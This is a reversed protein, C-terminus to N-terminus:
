VPSERSRVEPKCLVDLYKATTPWETFAQPRQGSQTGTQGRALRATTHVPAPTFRKSGRQGLSLQVQLIAGVLHCETHCSLVLARTATLGGDVQPVPVFFNHDRVDIAGDGLLLGKEWGM